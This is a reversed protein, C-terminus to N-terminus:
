FSKINNYKELCITKLLLVRMCHGKLIPTGKISRIFFFNKENTILFLNM